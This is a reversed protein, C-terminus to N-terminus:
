FLISMGGIEGMFFSYERKITPECFMLNTKVEDEDM